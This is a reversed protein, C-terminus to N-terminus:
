AARRRVLGFAGLGVLLLPLGAPLPVAAMRAGIFADDLYSPGPSTGYISFGTLNKGAALNSTLDHKKWDSTGGTDSILFSGTTMDDYYFQYSNFAGGARKVWISVESILATSTAAFNQRIRDGSFSAVSYSGTHAEDTTVTPTADQVTWPALNGTEFGGNTLLSAAQATTGAAFTLTAAMAAAKFFSSIITM